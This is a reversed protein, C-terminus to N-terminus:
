RTPAQLFVDTRNASLNGDEDVHAEIVVRPSEQIKECFLQGSEEYIMPMWSIDIEVRHRYPQETDIYVISTPCADNPRHKVGAVRGIILRRSM